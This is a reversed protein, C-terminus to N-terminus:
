KRRFKKPLCIYFVTGKEENSEFWVEGHLYQEVLL